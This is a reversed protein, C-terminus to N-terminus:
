RTVISRKFPALAAILQNCTHYPTRVDECALYADEVVANFQTLTIGMEGHAASMSAGQYEVGPGGLMVGVLQKNLSIQREVKGHAAFIHNIRNDAMIYKFLAETWRAVGYEGGFKEYADSSIQPYTSQPKGEPTESGAAFASLSSLSLATALVLKNFSKM